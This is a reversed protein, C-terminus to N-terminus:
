AQGHKFCVSPPRCLACAPVSPARHAGAAPLGEAAWTLWSAAAWAALM